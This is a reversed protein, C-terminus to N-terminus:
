KKTSLGFEVLVNEWNDFWLKLNQSTMWRIHCDKACNLNKEPIHQSTSCLVRDLLIGVERKDVNMAKVLMDLM